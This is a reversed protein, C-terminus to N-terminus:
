LCCLQLISRVKSSISNLVRKTEKSQINKPNQRSKQTIKTSMKDIKSLQKQQPKNVVEKNGPSKCTDQVLSFKCTDQVQSAVVDQDTANTEVSPQPLQRTISGVYLSDNLMLPSLLNSPQANMGKIINGTLHHAM